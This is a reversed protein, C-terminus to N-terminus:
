LRDLYQNFIKALRAPEVKKAHGSIKVTSVMLLKLDDINDYDVSKLEHEAILMKVALPQKQANVGCEKLAALMLDLAREKKQEKTLEKRSQIYKSDNNTLKFNTKGTRRLEFIHEKMKDEDLDSLLIEMVIEQSTPDIIVLGNEVQLRFRQELDEITEHAALKGGNRHNKIRKIFYQFEAFISEKM